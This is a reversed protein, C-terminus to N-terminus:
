EQPVRPLRLRSTLVASAVVLALASPTYLVGVSLSTVLCFALLGGTLAWVILVKGRTSGRWAALGLLALGTLVVPMFLPVLIWVGNVELISASHRVLESEPRAQRIAWNM